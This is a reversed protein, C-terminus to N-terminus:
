RSPAGTTGPHSPLRGVPEDHACPRRRDITDRCVAQEAARIVRHADRRSTHLDDLLLVIAPADAAASSTALREVTADSATPSPTRQAIEHSEMALQRVSVLTRPSM